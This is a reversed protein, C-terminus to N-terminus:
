KVNFDEVVEDHRKHIWFNLTSAISWISLPVVDKFAEKCYRCKTFISVEFCCILDCLHKCLHYVEDSCSHKILAYPVIVIICRKVLLNPM